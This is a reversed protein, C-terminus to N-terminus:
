VPQQADEEGALRDQEAAEHQDALIPLLHSALDARLEVVLDVDPGVALHLREAFRQSPELLPHLALRRLASRAADQRHMEAIGRIHPYQRVRSSDDLRDDLADRRPPSAAAPPASEGAIVVDSAVTM